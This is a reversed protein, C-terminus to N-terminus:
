LLLIPTAINGIPPVATSEPMNNQPPATPHAMNGFTISIQM